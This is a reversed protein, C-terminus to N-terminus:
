NLTKTAGSYTFSYMESEKAERLSIKTKNIQSIWSQHSPKQKLKNYPIKKRKTSFSNKELSLSFPLRYMHSSLPLSSSPLTSPLSFTILM